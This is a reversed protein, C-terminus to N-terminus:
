EFLRGSAEGELYEQVALEFALRAPDTEDTASGARLAAQGQGLKGKVRNEFDVPSNGILEEVRERSGPTELVGEDLEDLFLTLNLGIVGEETNLDFQKEGVKVISGKAGAITAHLQPHEISIRERGRWQMLMGLGPSRSKAEADWEGIGLKEQLSALIVECQEDSLRRDVYVRMAWLRHHSEIIESGREGNARDWAELSAIENPSGDDVLVDAPKLRMQPNPVWLAVMWGHEAGARGAAYREVEARAEPSRYREYLREAMHRKTYEGIRRYLSRSQLQQVIEAVGQWRGDHPRKTAEDLLHELLGDDGRRLVESEILEKPEVATDEEALASEWMEMAKGVMVDAALKAHHVLARESLEYRYRLYKFLESVVDARARGGKSIRIVMRQQYDPHDSRTVYFGDLFRRGVAAPLGTYLHDRQLYDILDACITNGVLDSVFPYTQEISQAQKSKSIILPKLQETLGKPLEIGDRRHDHPENLDSVLAKWLQDFRRDNADHPEFFRLDDELTHGFPVHGLDHLLGGLRALVTVEAVMRDFEGPQETHWQGFLDPVQHRGSGQTLVVDVLNQAARLTGLAHSFRTQTAGPYVLQTTGLQRVRRLRQMPSTDLLATELATLYIDGHIPDTVQKHPRLLEPALGWPKAKIQDETLGWKPM